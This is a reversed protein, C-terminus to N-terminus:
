NGGQRKNRGIKNFLRCQENFHRGTVPIFGLTELMTYLPRWKRTVDIKGARDKLVMHEQGEAKRGKEQEKWSIIHRQVHMSWGQGFNGRDKGGGEGLFSRYMSGFGM